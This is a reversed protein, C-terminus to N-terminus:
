PLRTMLEDRRGEFIRAHSAAADAFARLLSTKGVGAEGSLLVTRGRGQAAQNLARALDDLQTSREALAM